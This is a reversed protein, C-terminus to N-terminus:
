SGSVLKMLNGSSYFSSFGGTCRVRLRVSGPGTAGSVYTSPAGPPVLESVLVETAGVSRSDLTTWSGVTWNWVSLTQSCSLSNKGKYTLKLSAAENPVGSFTGYWSSIRQLGSFAANVSLLFADDAALDAASGSRLAGVEVTASAPFLTQETPPAQVVLSASAAHTLAGSTGTVTLTSTGPPTAASTTVTLVSTGSGGITAPSFSGTAGSPRGDFALAVSGAFGSVAGVSVTYAANGGATTTASAPSITLTFDPPPPPPEVVLVLTAQRTLAGSTGSVVVQYTGPPTAGSTTVTLQASGGGGELHDPVLTSGAGAPLGSVALSVQGAFGAVPSVTVTAAGGGGPSTSLSSPSLTLTFDPIPPPPPTVSDFAAVADLRGHGFTNDPGAAGLDVAHRLALELENAELEPYAGLILAAVGTVAPAAISTGTAYTYLGFLDTTRVHVGPAVLDPYTTAPEGCASPGRSSQLSIADAATTAGVAFAEPNNAPSVSSSAFPGSNGAAFVPLIGAARLSRLDNQFELNCGTAGLSWSNNVVHPADFTAPNGDPDLLWQFGQHIRSLRAVGQDDFIKVGIWTADPAIGIATGSASGGVMVGTTWTGHGSPDFPTPHQGNPDFWSNAGGRWRGGLEPHGADVGSDMTAVVIKQGRLGRAWLTPAGVLSVGPEAPTSAAAPQGTIAQDATVSLVDPRARLEAVVEATAKLSLGNFVWFPVVDSVQGRARRAALFIRIQRQSVTAHTRLRDLVKAQRARRSGRISRLDSQDRLTVIVPQLETAGPSSVIPGAGGALSALLLSCLIGALRRM